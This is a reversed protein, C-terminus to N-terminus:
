MVENFLVHSLRNMVVTICANCTMFFQCNHVFVDCCINLTNAKPKSMCMLVIEGSIMITQDIVSQEVWNVGARSTEEPVKALHRQTHHTGSVEAIHWNGQRDSPYNQTKRPADEQSLVLDNVADINEATRSTRRRGSGPQRDTTGTERMKNILYNLSRLCWGKQPFEIILKIADIGKLVHLNHILIWDEKIYLIIFKHLYNITDDAVM